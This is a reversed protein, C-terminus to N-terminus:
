RSLFAGKRFIGIAFRNYAMKVDINYKEELIKALLTNVRTAFKYNQGIKM